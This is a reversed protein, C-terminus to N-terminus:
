GLVDAREGHEKGAVRGLGDGARGVRDVAAPGRLLEASMRLRGRMARAEFSTRVSRLRGRGELRAEREEPHPSDMMILSSLFSRPASGFGALLRLFILRASCPPPACPANVQ